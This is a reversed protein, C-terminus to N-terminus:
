MRDPVRLTLLEAGVKLIEATIGTLALRLERSSDDAKLIPLVNYFANYEQCLSFLYNTLKHPMAQARADDLVAPFLMLRRMLLLEHEESASVSKPITVDTIEAKRLVSRARAHTYQLYPASNGEFTLAKEWDFVMDMKRNQSLMGYVLSGVGMQEALVAPEDTQIADGREKILEQARRVGEDLVEELKVMTGKRTSMSGDRFQMRGFVVHEMTPIKWDFKRVTAFLQQFHLSQAVDVVYLLAAPHHEDIRYRIMALDRTAYLTSGDSKRLMYPPLEEGFEVILAGGEGETVVNKKLGEELIPEMKDEYFSEGTEVDIHINLRDLVQQLNKKTAAVVAEWFARLEPDGAELKAFRKRGEEELSPDQELEKHFRVYLDFLDDVSCDAASEHKGWKEFAVSLNGFHTGWDGPYNWGIVDYGQHRYINIIAQGIITSLIHHIGLPKAINTGCYDVIVREKTTKQPACAEWADSVLKLRAEGTLTINIFGPGAVVASDVIHDGQISETLVAAIEKPSKGVQKSVQMCVNTTLDGHLLDSPAELAIDTSVGFSEQLLNGIRTALDNYV